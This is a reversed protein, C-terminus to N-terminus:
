QDSPIWIHRTFDSGAKTKVLSCQLRMRVDMLPNTEGFAEECFEPTVESDVKATDSPNVGIAAAIFGKVNGPGADQSMNVVWSARTGVAREPNDSELIECEVVVLPTGKRSTMVFAKVVSVLYNGPLFYVGGSSVKSAAISKFISATTPNM